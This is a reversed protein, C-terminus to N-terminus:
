RRAEGANRVLWAIAARVDPLRFRAVSAGNGVRIGFGGLDSAAAFGDEDTVDDGIFVPRRAAFPPGRMLSRVAAGKDVGPRKIEVVMSGRLSHLGFQRALAEAAAVCHAASEPAARYHIAVSDGKNELWAGDIGAIANATAVLLADLGPATRQEVADEPHHRVQAGHVGAGAFRFPALWRDIDDLRRGSVIALAGGLRERVGALLAPMHEPLAVHEPHDVIEVLTGDFDLFLADAESLDEPMM